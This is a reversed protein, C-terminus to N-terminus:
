LGMFLSLIKCLCGGWYFIITLFLFQKTKKVKFVQRFEWRLTLSIFTQIRHSVGYWVKILRARGRLMCITIMWKSQLLETNWTQSVMLIKLKLMVSDMLAPAQLLSCIQQYTSARMSELLIALKLIVGNLKIKNDM